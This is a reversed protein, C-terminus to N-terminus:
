LEAGARSERKKIILNGILNTIPQPPVRSPSETQLLEDISSQHERHGSALDAVLMGSLTGNVSGMGNQCCAAFLGTGIPGFIPVSNKSLCLRGGWFHEFGIPELMPFRVEFSRRHQLQINALRSDSLKKSSSSFTFRNRVLLRDGGYLAGSLRRVTTGMPDAPILGWFDNGKLAERESPKLPRTLSAFTFVDLLNHEYHQFMRINGNTALIVKPAAVRGMPTEAVYQTDSVLSTVPSIEFIKVGLKVLSQSVQQLYAAPHLLSTTPTRLGETYYNSGTIKSLEEPNVVDYQEELHDLHDRYIALLLQGRDTAAVNIKGCDRLIQPDLKDTEIIRRVFQIALRNRRIHAKDADLNDFYSESSLKHPLDIMFGSSRGAPGHGIRSADLMVIEDNQNLERLRRAAAVGAFGAGVILWDAKLSTNLAKFVPYSELMAVWGNAGVCSSAGIQHSIEEFM